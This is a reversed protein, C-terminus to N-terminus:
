IKYIPPALEMEDWVEERSFTGSYLPPFTPPSQLEDFSQPTEMAAHFDNWLESTQLPPLASSVQRWGFGPSVPLYSVSFFCHFSFLFFYRFTEISVRRTQSGSPLFQGNVSLSGQNAVPFPTKLRLCRNTFGHSPAEFAANNAFGEYQYYRPGHRLVTNTLHPPEGPTASCPLAFFPDGPFSPSGGTEKTSHRSLALGCIEYALQCKQFLVRKTTHPSVFQFWRGIMRYFTIEKPIRSPNKENWHGIQGNQRAAYVCRKGSRNNNRGNAAKSM